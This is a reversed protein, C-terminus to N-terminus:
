PRACSYKNPPVASEKKLVDLDKKYNANFFMNPCSFEAAKAASIVRLSMKDLLRNIGYRSNLLADEIYKLASKNYFANFPEYYGDPRATVCADFRKASHLRGIKQPSPSLIRHPAPWQKLGYPSNPRAGCRMRLKAGIRRKCLRFCKGHILAKMYRIYDLSIFPMDCATVYLYESGCFGLGSYIGALPGAGLKDPLTILGANAYYEPKNTSIIIECFEASLKVAMGDTVRVGGIRMLQKDFGMRESLGGALIVASGFISRRAANEDATYVRTM